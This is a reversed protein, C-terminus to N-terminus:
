ILPIFSSLSPYKINNRIFIHHIWIRRRKGNFLKCSQPLKLSCVFPLPFIHCLNFNEDMEYLHFTSILLIKIWVWLICDGFDFHFTSSFYFYPACNYKEGLFLKKGGRLYYSYLFLFLFLYLYFFSNNREKNKKRGVLCLFSRERERERERERKYIGEVRNEKM